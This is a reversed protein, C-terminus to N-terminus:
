GKVAGLMVGRVFYRQIFPYVLLIPVCILVIAVAQVNASIHLDSIQGGMNTGGTAGVLLNRLYITVPNLNQHDLYLFAPFWSNWFSVSYFLTMTALVAKSLPLVIRMLIGYTNLGDVAAAEELEPPLNEFFAKMVLLNFVSIANPLAIAWIQNRLGMASILVFNPIIGGSFFMTFVAVWILLTRGKLHKKSLVFAYTTTLVLAVVTSVSTYKITNWYNLWFLHDHSVLRYTDVNFGIPLLNVRGTRIAVESSFSKAVVHVFPVLTAIVVLTLGIANFVQFARYGRTDHIRGWRRRRPATVLRPKAPPAPPTAPARPASQEIAVV